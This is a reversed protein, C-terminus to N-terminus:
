SSLISLFWLIHPPQLSQQCAGGQQGEPCALLECVLAANGQVRRGDRRGSIQVRCTRSWTQVVATVQTVTVRAQGCLLDVNGRGVKTTGLMKASISWTRSM